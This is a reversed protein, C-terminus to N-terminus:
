FIERVFCEPGPFLSQDLHRMVKNCTKTPSIENRSWFVQQFEIENRANNFCVFLAFIDIQRKEKNKRAKM